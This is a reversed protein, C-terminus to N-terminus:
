VGGQVWCVGFIQFGVGLYLSNREPLWEVGRRIVNKLFDVLSNEGSFVLKFSNLFAKFSAAMKSGAGPCHM